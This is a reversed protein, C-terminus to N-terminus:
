VASLNGSLNNNIQRMQAIEAKQAKETKDLEAREKKSLRNVLLNLDQFLAEEPLNDHM